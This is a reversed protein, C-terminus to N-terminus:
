EGGRKVFAFLHAIKNVREQGPFPPFPPCLHKHFFGRQLRTLMHFLDGDPSGVYRYLSGALFFDQM